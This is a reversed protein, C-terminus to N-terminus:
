FPRRHAEPGAGRHKFASYLQSYRNALLSWTPYKIMQYIRVNGFSLQMNLGM